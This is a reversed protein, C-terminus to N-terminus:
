CFVCNNSDQKQIDLGDKIWREAIDKTKFNRDIHESLKALAVSSIESFERGLLKNTEEILEKISITPISVSQIEPLELILTPEKLRQKEQELNQELSILESKFEDINITSIDISLFSQYESNQKDKLYLPLLNPLTSKKLRLQKKQNAIKTALEVG